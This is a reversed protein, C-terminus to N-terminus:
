WGAWAKWSVDDLRLSGSFGDDDDLRLSENFDDDLRLSGNVDDDGDDDLRGGGASM